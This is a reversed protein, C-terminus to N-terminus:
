GPLGAGAHALLIQEFDKLAAAATALPEAGQSIAMTQGMADTTVRIAKGKGGVQAFPDALPYTRVAVKARVKDDDM